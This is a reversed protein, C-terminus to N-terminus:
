GTSARNWGEGIGRRSGEGGRRACAGLGSAGVSYHGVPWPLGDLAVLVAPLELCSSPRTRAQCSSSPFSASDTSHLSTKTIERRAASEEECRFLSLSALPRAICLKRTGSGRSRRDVHLFLLPSLLFAVWSFLEVVVVVARRVEVQHHRRGQDQGQGVRQRRRRACSAFISTLARGLIVLLVQRSQSLPSACNDAPCLSPADASCRSSLPSFLSARRVSCSGHARSVRRRRTPRTSCPPSASPSRSASRQSSFLTLSVCAPSCSTSHPSSRCPPTLRAVELAVPVLRVNRPQVRWAAPRV